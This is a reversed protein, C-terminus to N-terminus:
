RLKTLRAGQVRVAPISAMWCVDIRAYSTASQEVNRQIRIPTTSSARATRRRKRSHPQRGEDIPDSLSRKRM